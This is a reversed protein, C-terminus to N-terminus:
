EKGPILLTVFDIPILHALLIARMIAILFVYAKFRRDPVAFSIAELILTQRSPSLWTFNLYKLCSPWIRSALSVQLRPGPYSLLQTPIAVWQPSSPGPISDRHPPPRIKRVRGSRGQPGGLRRYLPYRTKGRPLAAPAHRQGGVGM